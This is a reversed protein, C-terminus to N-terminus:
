FRLKYPNQTKKAKQGKAKEKSEKLYQQFTENDPEFSLAFQVNMACGNFDDDRWNQLALRWYKAGKETRAAQAPDSAAKGASRADAQGDESLRLQGQALEADYARRKDPDKLVRYAENITRYIETGKKTIGKDGLRALRDPHRSRSERRFATEFAEPRCDPEVLLLKYYSLEDLLGHLTEIEIRQRMKSDM